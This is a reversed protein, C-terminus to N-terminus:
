ILTCADDIINVNYYVYTIDIDDPEYKYDLFFLQNNAYINCHSYYFTICFFEILFHDTQASLILHTCVGESDSKGKIGWCKVDCFELFNDTVKIQSWFSQFCVFIGALARLTDGESAM